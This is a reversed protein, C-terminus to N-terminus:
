SSSSGIGSWLVEAFRALTVAHRDVFSEELLNHPHALCASEEHEDHQRTKLAAQGGTLFHDRWGSVTAATVGLERSVVDIDEGRLLRLIARTKRRASCRGRDQDTASVDAPSRM